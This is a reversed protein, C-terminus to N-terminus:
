GPITLSYAKRIKREAKGLGAEHYILLKFVRSMIIRVKTKIGAKSPNFFPNDLLMNESPPMMAPSSMAVLNLSWNVSANDNRFISRLIKLRSENMM